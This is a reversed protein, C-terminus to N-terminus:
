EPEEMNVEIEPVQVISGDFRFGCGRLFFEFNKLADDLNPMGDLEVVTKQGPFARNFPAKQVCTFRM